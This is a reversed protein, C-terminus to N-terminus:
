TRRRAPVGVYTGAHEASKVLCAGAGIVTGDAVTLGVITVNAGSAIDFIRSNNNGSITLQNAGPGEINLNTSIALDGSTLKIDHVSRAFEITEGSVASAIAARLSGAGSDASSMVIFPSSSLTLRNELNEMRLPRASANRRTRRGRHRPAVSRTMLKTLFKNFM